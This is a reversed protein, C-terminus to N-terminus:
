AAQLQDTSIRQERDPNLRGRYAFDWKGPDSRYATILVAPEAYGKPIGWVLHVPKGNSDERLFLACHGKRFDPYEELLVCEEIGAM